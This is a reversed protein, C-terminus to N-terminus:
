IAHMRIALISSLSRRKPNLIPEQRVAFASTLTGRPLVDPEVKEIFTIIREFIAEAHDPRFENRGLAFNKRLALDWHSTDCVHEYDHWVAEWVVTIANADAGLAIHNLTWLSHRFAFHNSQASDCIRDLVENSRVRSPYLALGM